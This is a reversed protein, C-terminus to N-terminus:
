LIVVIDNKTWDHMSLKCIVVTFIVKPIHAFHLSIHSSQGPNSHSHTFTCMYIFVGSAWIQRGPCKWPPSSFHAELAGVWIDKSASTLENVTSTKWLTRSRLTKKLSGKSFFYNVHLKNWYTYKLIRIAILDYYMYHLFYVLPISKM